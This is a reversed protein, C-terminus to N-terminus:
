WFALRLMIQFLSALVCPPPPLAPAWWARFLGGPFRAVEGPLPRDAPLVHALPGGRGPQTSEGFATGEARLGRAEVGARRGQGSGPRRRQGEARGRPGQLGPQGRETGPARLVCAGEPRKPRSLRAPWVPGAGPLAPWLHGPARLPKWPFARAGRLGGGARHHPAASYPARDRPLGPERSGELLPSRPIRGEGGESGQLRAGRAPAPSALGAGGEM